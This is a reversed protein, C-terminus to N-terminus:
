IIKGKEIHFYKKRGSLVMNNPETCTIFIQKKKIKETLYNQRSVDLESMIDDLLLIPAEGTINEIMETQAMKVATVATKQQGQSAYLRAPAGNVLFEIDDRHPGILAAGAMEEARAKKEIVKLFDKEIKQIDSLNTDFTPQYVVSLREDKGSIERQNRDAIPSMENLFDYRGKIIKAGESALKENWISLTDKACGTKLLKNKQKLIKSYNKLSSYYSPKHSSIYMNLFKRRIEPAGSILSMEEPCFLVCNFIGLLESTKKLPIGNLKIKKTGNSLLIIECVNKRVSNEFTLIVKAYDKGFAILEKDSQARYSKAGAFFYVAELLNTKGQANEGYIINTNKSFVAKQNEYNRFNELSVKEAIM